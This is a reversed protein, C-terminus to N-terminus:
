TCTPNTEAMYYSYTFLFPKWSPTQTTPKAAICYLMLIAASIGRSQLSSVQDVMLSMLPSVVIVVSLEVEPANM